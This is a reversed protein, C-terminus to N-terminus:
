KAEFASLLNEVTKLGVRRLSEETSGAVHLTAIFNSLSLLPNKSEPPEQEFVDSAAGAICHSDLARFLDHENVIGGRSTNVLLLAPNAVAFIRENVLNKTEATLPVNVSVIDMTQFLQALTDIKSFGLASLETASRHPNFCFVSCSFATRVIEATRQATFGSGIFGIKKGFLENGNLESLGWKSFTGACLGSDNQKVKFLLSLMFSVALEAVSEANEGPTNKVIIGRKKAEALDIQDTGTGHDSIVRLRPCQAMIEATVPIKRTIIGEIQEPNDFTSVITCHSTLLALADSHLAESLFVTHKNM